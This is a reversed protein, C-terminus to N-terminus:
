LVPVRSPAQARPPDDPADPDFRVKVRTQIEPSMTSAGGAAGNTHLQLKYLDNSLHLAMPSPQNVSGRSHIALKPSIARNPPRTRRSMKPPRTRRKKPSTRRCDPMRIRDEVMTMAPRTNMM